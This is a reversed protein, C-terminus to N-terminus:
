RTVCISLRALCATEQRSSIIGAPNDTKVAESVTEDAVERAGANMGFLRLVQGAVRVDVQRQAAVCVRHKTVSCVSDLGEGIPVFHFGVGRLVASGSGISM